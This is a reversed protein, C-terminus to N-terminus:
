PTSKKERDPRPCPKGQCPKGGAARTECPKGNDLRKEWWESCKGSEYRVACYARDGEVVLTAAVIVENSAGPPLQWQAQHGWPENFINFFNIHSIRSQIEDRRCGNAVGPSLQLTRRMGEPILAYEACAPGESPSRQYFLEFSGNPM